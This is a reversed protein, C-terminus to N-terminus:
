FTKQLKWRGNIKATVAGLNLDIYVCKTNIEPIDTKICHETSIPTLTIFGYDYLTKLSSTLDSSTLHVNNDKLLTPLSKIPMAFSLSNKLSPKGIYLYREEGFLSNRVDEELLSFVFQWKGKCLARHFLFLGLKLTDLSINPVSILNIAYYSNEDDKQNFKAFDGIHMKEHKTWKKLGDREVGIPNPVIYNMFTGIRLSVNEKLKTAIEPTLNIRNEYLEM